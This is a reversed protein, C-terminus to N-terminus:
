SRRIIPHVSKQAVRFGLVQDDKICDKIEETSLENLALAEDAIAQEIHFGIYVCLRMSCTTHADCDNQSKSVRRTYM